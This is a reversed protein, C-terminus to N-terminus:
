TLRRLAKGRLDAIVAMQGLKRELMAIERELDSERGTAGTREELGKEMAQVAQERWRALTTETMGHRRRAEAITVQKSLVRLM